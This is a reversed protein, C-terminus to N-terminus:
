LLRGNLNLIGVGVGLIGLALLPALALLKPLAPKGDGGPIPKQILVDDHLLKNM